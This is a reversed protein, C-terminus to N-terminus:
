GPALARGTLLAHSCAHTPRRVTIIMRGHFAEEMPEFAFANLSLGKLCSRLGSTGGKIGDFGKGIPPPSM